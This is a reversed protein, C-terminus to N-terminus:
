VIEKPLPKGFMFYRSVGKYNFCDVHLWDVGEEIRTIFQFATEDPLSLIEQRVSEATRGTITLDLAKGQEHPSMYVSNKIDYGPPRLGRYKEKDGNCIIPVSFYERLADATWLIKPDLFWWCMEGYKFILEPPVLEDLTFYIPRYYRTTLANM